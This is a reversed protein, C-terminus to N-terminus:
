YSLSCYVVGIDFGLIIINQGLIYNLYLIYQSLFSTFDFRLKSIHDIEVWTFSEKWHWTWQSSIVWGHSWKWSDLYTKKQYNTPNNNDFCSWQNFFEHFNLIGSQYNPSCAIFLWHYLCNPSICFEKKVFNQKSKKKAVIILEKNCTRM